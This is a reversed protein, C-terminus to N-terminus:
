RHYLKASTVRDPPTLRELVNALEQLNEYGEFRMVESSSTTVIVPSLSKSNYQLRLNKIQAINVSVVVDRYSVAIMGLGENVELVPYSGAGEKIIRYTRLISPVFMFLGIAPFVMDSLSKARLLAIVCGVSLVILFLAIFLSKRNQQKVHEPSVQFQM